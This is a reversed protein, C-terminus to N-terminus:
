PGHRAPPRNVPDGSVARVVLRRVIGRRPGTLETKRTKEPRVFPPSGRRRPSAKADGSPATRTEVMSCHARPTVHAHKM